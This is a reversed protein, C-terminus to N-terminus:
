TEAPFPTRIFGRHFQRTGAAGAFSPTQMENRGGCIGSITANLANVHLSLISRRIEKVRGTVSSAFRIEPYDTVNGGAVMMGPKCRAIKIQIWHKQPLTKSPPNLAWM